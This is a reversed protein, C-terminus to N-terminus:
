ADLKPGECVTYMVSFVMFPTTSKKPLAKGGLDVDIEMCSFDM